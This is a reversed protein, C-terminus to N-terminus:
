NGRMQRARKAILGGEPRPNTWTGRPVHPREVHQSPSRATWQGTAVIQVRRFRQYREVVILGKRELRQVLVPGMSGSNFGTIMELDLNLPCQDGNAAAERLAEYVLQEPYSLDDM